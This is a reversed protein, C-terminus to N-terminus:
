TLIFIVIMLAMKNIYICWGVFALFSFGSCILGEAQGANDAAESLFAASPWLGNFLKSRSPRDAAVRTLAM